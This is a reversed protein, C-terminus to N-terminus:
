ITTETKSISFSFSRPTFTLFSNFIFPAYEHMGSMTASLHSSFNERWALIRKMRLSDTHNGLELRLVVTEDELTPPGQAGESSCYSSGVSEEDDDSPTSDSFQSSSASSSAFSEDTMLRRPPPPGEVLQIIQVSHYYLNAANHKVDDLMLQDNTAVIDFSPLTFDLM